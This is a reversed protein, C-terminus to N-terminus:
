SSVGQEILIARLARLAYFARSKVTGEPIGLALAAQAVSRGRYFTEVLVARHEPTLAALAESVVLSQLALDIDQDGSLAEVDILEVAVEMPRSRRVRFQDMVLNHTVTFLWGRASGREGNLAAPHTWARLLTEQVVDEAM